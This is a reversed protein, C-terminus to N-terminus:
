RNKIKMLTEKPVIKKVIEKTYKIVRYKVIDSKQAGNNKMVRTIEEIRMKDVKTFTVGALSYFALVEDIYKFKAGAHEYRLLLDYDMVWKCLEDYVGYQMYAKKTIFTSQHSINNMGSFDFHMSPKEIVKVDTDEKWLLVKGRYVDVSAEYADNLVQLAGPLLGDDSNIIGIIDGTALQIGKNFADSIGKDPESIWKTIHNEYKKIIDLTGDTSGGDVIIYELNDYNQELISKIAREIFRVSNYTITIISIKPKTNM